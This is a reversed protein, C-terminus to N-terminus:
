LMSLGNPVENFTKRTMTVMIEFDSTAIGAQSKVASVEEVHLYKVIFAGLHDESIYM